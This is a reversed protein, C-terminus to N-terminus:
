KPIAEILSQTYTSQPNSYLQDSEGEEEIKGSKNMVLMRDCFHKVVSLDHSIFLYTLGFSRKLDNLLNLVQAQISVDLASVSEDCIIIKPQVALTRAISIRQRQGGSFEHPYKYYDEQELGVKNLLDLVIKKKDESNKGIQHVELPEQIAKGVTKRPNLSAFPDQFIIQVQKRYALLEDTNLKSLQQGRYSIKGDEKELLRVLARGITTKGCGSEGILGLSEGEFLQFSVGDVAQHKKTVKGFWNKQAVYSVKLNEVEFVPEQKYIEKHRERRTAPEITEKQFDNGGLFDSITPLNLYRKNLPPRCAMLAKTYAHSPNNFVKEVKGQEVIEGNKMVLVRTALNSVLSLDHTIFLMSMGTETQIDKLLDLVEKQITVDLATTPEDAILLQPKCSIAIAIMIRQKQGGSLEHPYKFYTKSPEPLKVKELLELTRAVAVKKTVGENTTITETIQEGCTFVPNLSTMPEQFVMSIKKGKVGKHTLLLDQGEFDITGGRVIAADPLLSMIALSCLSKGSGSEGVVGVIENKQVSFNINKLAYEEGFSISLENVNIM